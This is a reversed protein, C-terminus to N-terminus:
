LETRFRPIEHLYQIKRDKQRLVEEGDAGVHIGLLRLQVNMTELPVECPYLPKNVYKYATCCIKFVHLNREISHPNISFIHILAIQQSTAVILAQTDM